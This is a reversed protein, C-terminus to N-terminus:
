RTYETDGESFHSETVLILFHQHEQQSYYLVKVEM